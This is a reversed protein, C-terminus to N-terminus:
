IHRTIYTVPKYEVSKATVIKRDEFETGVRDAYLTMSDYIACKYAPKGDCIILYQENTDINYDVTFLRDKGGWGGSILLRNVSDSRYSVRYIQAGSIELAIDNNDDNVFIMDQPLGYVIRNNYIFGSIAQRVKRRKSLKDFSNGSYTYLWFEPKGQKNGGAILSVHWENDYWATPSCECVHRGHGTNLRVKTGDPLLAHTKWTVGNFKCFLLVDDCVLFPMHTKPMNTVVDLNDFLQHHHKQRRNLM